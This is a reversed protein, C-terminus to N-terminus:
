SFLQCVCCTYITWLVCYLLLQSFYDCRALVGQAMWVPVILGVLRLEGLEYTLMETPASRGERTGQSGEWDESTGDERGENGAGSRLVRSTERGEAGAAWDPHLHSWRRAVFPGLNLHFMAAVQPLRFRQAFTKVKCQVTWQTTQLLGPHCITSDECKLRLHSSAELLLRSPTQNFLNTLHLVSLLGSSQISCQALVKNIKIIFLGVM